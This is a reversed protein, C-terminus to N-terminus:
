STLSSASAVKRCAWSAPTGIERSGSGGVLPLQDAHFVGFVFLVCLGLGVAAMRLPNRETYSSM